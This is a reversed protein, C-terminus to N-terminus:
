RGRVHHTTKPPQHQRFSGGKLMHNVERNRKLELERAQKLKLAEAGVKNDPAPGPSPPNM